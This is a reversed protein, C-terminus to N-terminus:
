MRRQVDYAWSFRMGNESFKVTVIELILRLNLEFFFFSYGVIQELQLSLLFYEISWKWALPIYLSCCCCCYCIRVSVHTITDLLLFSSHFIYFLWFLLYFLLYFLLTMMMKKMLAECDYTNHFQVFKFVIICSMNHHRNHNCNHFM